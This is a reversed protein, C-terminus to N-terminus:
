LVLASAAARYRRAEDQLDVGGAGSAVRENTTAMRFMLARAVAVAKALVTL